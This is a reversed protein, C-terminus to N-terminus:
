GLHRANSHNWLPPTGPHWSHCLFLLTIPAKSFGKSNRSAASSRVIPSVMLSVSCIVLVMESPLSTCDHPPRAPITIPASKAFRSWQQITSRLTKCVAALPQLTPAYAHRQRDSDLDSRDKEQHHQISRGDYSLHVAPSTGLEHLIRYLIDDPLDLLGRSSSNMTNIFLSFASQQSQPPSFHM